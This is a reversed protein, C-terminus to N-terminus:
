NDLVQGHSLRRALQSLERKYFFYRVRWPLAWMVQSIQTQAKPLTLIEVPKVLSNLNECTHKGYKSCYMLVHLKEKNYRCASWHPLNINQENGKWVKNQM